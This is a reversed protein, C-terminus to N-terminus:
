SDCNGCAAVDTPSDPQSGQGPGLAAPSYDRALSALVSMPHEGAAIRALAADPLKELDLHSFAGKLEHKESYKEPFAGKLLFILLTDSYRIM